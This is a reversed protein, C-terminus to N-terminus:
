FRIDVRKQDELVRTQGVRTVREYRLATTTVHRKRRSDGRTTRALWCCWDLKPAQCRCRPRRGRPKEMPWGGREHSSYGGLQDHPAPSLPSYCVLSDAFDPM